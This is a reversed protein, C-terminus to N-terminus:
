FAKLNRSINAILVRSESSNTTKEYDKSLRRNGNLWAFTREVVWRKPIVAFGDKLKESIHVAKGCQQQVHDVFTGRYGADACIAQISSLVELCKDILDCGGVTDHVNASHVHVNWINGETDVAIQRSRGKVKKGGHFGIAEGEYTTKVSQSDVIVYSPRSSRGKKAPEERQAPRQNTGVRGKGEDKQLSRLRDALAPFAKAADAM